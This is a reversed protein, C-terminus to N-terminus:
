ADSVQMAVAVRAGGAPFASLYERGARIVSADDGYGAYASVLTAHLPDRYASRPFRQDLLPVLQSAAARHFYALSKEDRAQYQSRPSTWNLVLSLIGNLFGPAPDLTAIDKYFSLDGSGFQIPQEPATLLLNALGYLGREVQPGGAPPVSYLAYYL